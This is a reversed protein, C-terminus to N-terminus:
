KNLSLKELAERAIAVIDDANIEEDTIAKNTIHKFAIRGLVDVKHDSKWSQDARQALRAVDWKELLARTCERYFEVRNDPLLYKPQVYLFCIITLM